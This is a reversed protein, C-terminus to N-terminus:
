YEEDQNLGFSETNSFWNTHSLVGPFNPYYRFVIPQYKIVLGRNVLPIKFKSLPTTPLIKWALEANTETYLRKRRWIDNDCM